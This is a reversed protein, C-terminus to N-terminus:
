AAEFLVDMTLANQVITQAYDNPTLGLTTILTLFVAKQTQTVDKFVGIKTRLEEAYKKDITFPHISFKAECLNIAQDRRDIVLDIQAKQSGSSGSWAASSTQIGSIGLAKKIAPLHALCVQEIAYGSWARIDPNDLSNLWFNEDLAVNPKIFKLYFLSYFDTLQYMSNRLNKGLFNYRRIFGSEELEKLLRTTNGSNQLKSSRILEDREMGKSKQALAEIISVHKDANKFLSPYLNDFERRLNGKPTFCLRNINQSASQGTDVMDLYFPIGGMVMYLQLLQYRSFTASRSRFFQECEALTFPEIPLHHTVRNHLGGHNNILNNMMWSAASGCVILLVDQRASAWSNWFHELASVFGSNRSDMWPMEDLFVVKKAAPSSELAYELQIFASFWDTAPTKEEYKPFYRVLAAHFNTLQKGAKTNALGTMYFTFNQEFVSRVLFTKGVRRRGYIAVFSSRDTQAALKKLLEAEEKRGILM